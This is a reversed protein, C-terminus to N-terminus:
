LLLVKQFSHHPRNPRGLKEFGMAWFLGRKAAGVNAVLVIIAFSSM